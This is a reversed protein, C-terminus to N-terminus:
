QDSDPVRFIPKPVRLILAERQLCDWNQALAHKQAREGARRDGCQGIACRGLYTPPIVPVRTLRSIESAKHGAGAAIGEIEELLGAVRRDRRSAGARQQARGRSAAFAVLHAYNAVSGRNRRAL